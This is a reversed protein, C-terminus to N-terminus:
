ETEQLGRLALGVAVAFEPGIEKLMTDLFPPAEVKLFPDGILVDTAFERSARERVLAHLSGGGALTIKSITRHYKRQYSTLVRKLEFFIYDLVPAATTAVEPNAAERKLLEAKDFPMNLSKSLAHTIDQSGKNITHSLRVIGYDVIVAKTTSAGIDIVMTPAVDHGFVSRITSFIEIEFAQLELKRLSAIDRYGALVNNHIALLLVETGRESTPGEAVVDEFQESESRPIVTWDLAVESIPVPIYKRAELQIVKDMDKEHLPPLEILTLLSSRLPIAFVAKTATVNAEKSLDALAEAIKEPMLTVAQGVAQKAYPGLAITGYTELVARGRKRVLQVVKISSSGIDVGLVRDDKKWLATLSSVDLLKAFPNAM